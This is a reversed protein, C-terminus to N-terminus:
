SAVIDFFAHRHNTACVQRVFLAEFVIIKNEHAVFLCVQQGCIISKRAIDDERLSAREALNSHNGCLGAKRAVDNRLTLHLEGHIGRLNVRSENIIEKALWVRHLRDLITRERGTHRM